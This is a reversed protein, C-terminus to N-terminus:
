YIKSNYRHMIRSANEVSHNTSRYKSRYPIGKVKKDPHDIPINSEFKHNYHKRLALNANIM